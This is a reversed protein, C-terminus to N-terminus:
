CDRIFAKTLIDLYVREEEASGGHWLVGIKAIRASQQARAISPLVVSLGVVRIIFERRRM